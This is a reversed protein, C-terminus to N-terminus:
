KGPLLPSSMLVIETNMINKHLYKCCKLGWKPGSCLAVYEKSKSHLTVSKINEPLRNWINSHLTILIKDRYTASNYQRMTIDNPHATANVKSRFADKM